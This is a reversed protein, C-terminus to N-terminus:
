VPRQAGLGPGQGVRGRKEWDLVVSSVAVESDCEGGAGRCGESSEAQSAPLPDALESPPGRGPQGGPPRTDSTHSHTHHPLPVHAPAHVYGLLRKNFSFSFKPDKSGSLPCKELKQEEEMKLLSDPKSNQFAFVPGDKLGVCTVLPCLHPVPWGGGESWMMWSGEERYARAQLVRDLQLSYSTLAPSHMWESLSLLVCM